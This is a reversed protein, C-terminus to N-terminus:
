AAEVERALIGLRDWVGASLSEIPAQKIVRLTGRKELVEYTTAGNQARRFRLTISAEGVRLNRLTIEPLWDPLVPYVTLLRLPAVPLIGLITQLLIPFVSQNWTQPANAQPYAGPGNSEERSYGGICEPIRHGRWIVALDYLARALRHVEQEFGFRKLGFLLTANEVPWVTGLHYSLPNYAPNNTSLTRIGWGSFMDPAFLRQVLSRLYDNRVIGTTLTQAANSTVARIQQKDPDLGLAVCQQDPMWFDRNFREKLARSAKWYAAADGFRGAVASLVAMIQQAAFWYGQIECTAIPTGVQTGDENVVANEADRWGQHKPGGSSRTKYELYGDGDIDGSNAAWDLIRRAVDYHKLLLQRDGSWSYLQALSFIFAFPSAYDGYYLGMPSLNLRSSRSRERARIIRGPQEDRWADDSRGQLRGTTCLASDAM